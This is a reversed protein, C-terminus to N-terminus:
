EAKYVDVDLCIHWIDPAFTKIKELHLTKYQLAPEILSLQNITDDVFSNNNLDAIHVNEHIHITTIPLISYYTILSLAIPWSMRSSPLLGLNIHRIKLNKFYKLREIANENSENYIHCHGSFKNALIGRKLGEISWPNLDFCFVNKAGLKMYSLTFYGIGAYLDVVDNGNIEVFTDLIRKKEKINGRSFMTFVPAWFQHIGNQIIHCWITSTFDKDTPTKWAHSPIDGSFLQGYLSVISLPRRVIDEESIPMNSAVHSYSPFIEQLMVEFFLDKDLKSFLNKWSIHLFSRQTSYNFLVLPSYLSYKLPLTNLLEEIHFDDVYQKKLYNKVFLELSSSKINEEFIYERSIASYTKTVYTVLSSGKNLNSRILKYNKESIIPKIFANNEELLVKIGKVDKPNRVVFEIM